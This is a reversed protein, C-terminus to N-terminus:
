LSTGNQEIHLRRQHRISCSAAAAANEDADHIIMGMDVQNDSVTHYSPAYDVVLLDDDMKKYSFNEM